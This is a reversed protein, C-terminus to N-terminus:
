QVRRARPVFSLARAEERVLPAKVGIVKEEGEPRARADVEAVEDKAVIVSAAGIELVSGASGMVEHREARVELRRPWSAPPSPRRSRGRSGDRSAGDTAPDM